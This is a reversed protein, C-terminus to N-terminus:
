QVRFASNVTLNNLQSKRFNSNHLLILKLGKVGEGSKSLKKSPGPYYKDKLVVDDVCTWSHGRPSSDTYLFRDSFPNVLSNRFEEATECIVGESMAKIKLTVDDSLLVLQGENRIRKFFLACELIHDETTPTVIEQISCPSFPSSGISFVSKEEGFWSLPSSPPTPAVPRREEALSQVHIWGEANEMCEEIWQLAASVETTRRFFTGRRLMCDLERIVIRPVILGTGKLGRLLQLEKRSKKNLLCAVDVVMTWRKNDEKITEFPHIVEELRVSNIAIGSRTTIDLDSAKSKTKSNSTSNVLLSQLPKRDATAKLLALKELGADSKSVSNVLKQKQLAMLNQNEKDLSTPMKDEQYMNCVVTKLPSSRHSKPYDVEKLKGMKETYRLRLTNPTMNEKDPTFIEEEYEDACSFLTQSTLDSRSNEQYMNCDVVKKLPSSRYSKNNEVEKLKGMKKMYRLRLTNPTMNEQDPTFIEEENEDVCSFLTRITLDNRPNEQGQNESSQLVLSNSSCNEKDPTFIQKRDRDSRAFPDDSVSVCIPSSNVESNDPTFIEEEDQDVRAFLTRSNEHSMNELSQLILSNSSINEKDPTHKENNDGRVFADGPVTETQSYECIPSKVEADDPTFIVAGENQSVCSSTCSIFEIRSNEQGTNKLSQFLPSNPTLTQKKDFDGNSSPDESVTETQCYERISSKVESNDPTFIQEDDRDACSFLTRSIFESRSNEQGIHELSQLLPSKPSCNEKDPTFIQKKDIDGVAFLDQSDSETPSNEHIPVKVEANSTIRASKGRSRSIQIQVSAPKGRRSWISSGSTKELKVESIVSYEIPSVTQSVESAFPADLISNKEHDIELSNKNEAEEKDSFSDNMDEPMPPASPSMKQVSSIPNENSFLLQLGELIDVSSQIQDDEGYLSNEDQYSEKVEDITDLLPVFPNNLDYARAVPLWHLRYLRRSGGLQMTDGEKLEVMVGPEIKKGSIWTGHVSYLDIVSLSYSSRNSHIRLHFRSISPHELTLNCDPHRGVLLTEEKISEKGNKSNFEVSSSPISPRNNLLYINKLIAHNKLVTFVPIKREEAKIESIPPNLLEEQNDAM